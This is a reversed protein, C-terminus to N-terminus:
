CPSRPQSNNKGMETSQRCSPSPVGWPGAAGGGGTLPCLEPRPRGACGRRATGGRASAPPRATPGPPARRSRAPAPPRATEPVPPASPRPASLLHPCLRSRSGCPRLPRPPRLPGPAPLSGGHPAPAPGPGAPRGRLAAREAAGAGRAGRGAGGGPGRAAERCRAAGGRGRRRGEAEATSGRRGRHQQRPPITRGAPARLPAPSVQAAHARRPWMPREWQATQRLPRAARSCSHVTPGAPVACPQRKGVGPATIARHPAAQHDRLSLPLGLATGGGATGGHADEPLLLKKKESWKAGTGGCQEYQLLPSSSSGEGPSPPKSSQRHGEPLAAASGTRLATRGRLEAAKRSNSTSGGAHEKFM